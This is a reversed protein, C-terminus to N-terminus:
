DHILVFVSHKKQLSSGVLKNVTGGEFFFNYGVVGLCVSSFFFPNLISEKM